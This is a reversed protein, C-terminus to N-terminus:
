IRLLISFYEHSSNRYVLCFHHSSVNKWHFHPHYHFSPLYLLYCPFFTSEFSSHGQSTHNLPDLVPRQVLPDSTWNRTLACAQTTPWTGLLPHMLPLWVSINREKEKERWEERDLFLIFLIKFFFFLSYVLTGHSCIGYVFVRLLIKAFWIWCCM